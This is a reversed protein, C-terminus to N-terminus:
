FLAFPSRSRGAFFRAALQRQADHLKTNTATERRRSDVLLQELGHNRSSGQEVANVAALARDREKAARTEWADVHHVAELLEGRVTDREERLMRITRHAVAIESSLAKIAADYQAADDAHEAETLALLEILAERGMSLRNERRQLSSRARPSLDDDDSFDNAAVAHLHEDDDATTQKRRGGSLNPHLGAQSPM